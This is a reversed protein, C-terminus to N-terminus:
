LVEAQRFMQSARGVEGRVGTVNRVLPPAEPYTKIM